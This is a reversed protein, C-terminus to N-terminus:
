ADAINIRNVMTFANPVCTTFISAYMCKTNHGTKGINIKDFYYMFKHEIEAGAPIMFYQNPIVGSSVHCRVEAGGAIFRTTWSGFVGGTQASLSKQNEAREPKVIKQLDSLREESLYLDVVNLGDENRQMDLLDNFGGAKRIFEVDDTLGDETIATSGTNDPVSGGQASITGALGGALSNLGSSIKNSQRTAPNSGETKTNYFLDREFQRRASVYFKKEQSRINADNVGVDVLKGEENADGSKLRRYSITPYNIDSTAFQVEDGNDGFDAAYEDYYALFLETNDAINADSGYVLSITATNTGSNWDTIKYVASGSKTKVHTAGQTIQYPKSATPADFVLTGGGATYAGNLQVIDNTYKENFWIERTGLKPVRVMYKDLYPAYAASRINLKPMVNENFTQGSNLLLGAM